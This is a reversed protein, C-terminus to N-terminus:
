RCAMHDLDIHSVFLEESAAVNEETIRITETIENGTAYDEVIEEYDEFKADRTTSRIFGPVDVEIYTVTYTGPRVNRFVFNHANDGHFKFARRQDLYTGEDNTGDIRVIWGWEVDEEDMPEQECTSSLSGFVDSCARVADAETQLIEFHFPSHDVEGDERLTVQIEAPEEDVTVAQTGDRRWLKATYEGAPLDLNKFGDGTGQVGGSHLYDNIYDTAVVEGSADELTIKGCEAGRRNEGFLTEVCVSSQCVSIQLNFTYGEPEEPESGGSTCMWWFWPNCFGDAKGQDVAASTLADCDQTMIQAASEETCSEPVQAEQDPFCAQIHERAQECADAGSPSQEQPGCAITTGMMGLTMIMAATKKM